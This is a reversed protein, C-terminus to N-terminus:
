YQLTPGIIREYLADLVGSAKYYRIWNNLWYLFRDNGYRVALCGYQQSFPEHPNLLETTQPNNRVYPIALYQEALAADAKKSSVELFCTDQRDLGRIEARPFLIKALEHSTSGILVSVVKGPRNLDTHDQYRAGKQIMLVHQYPVYPESFQITKAREPTNVLGNAILDVKGALLAPITGTFDLDQIELKVGLDSAMLKLMEVDYGAPERTQPDRYFQPPFQLVMAVRLVKREQIEYWLDRATGQRPADTAGGCGLLLLPYTLAQSLRRTM